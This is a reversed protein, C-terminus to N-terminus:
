LSVENMMQYAEQETPYFGLARMISPIESITVKEGVKRIDQTDIGQNRLQAYCFLNELQYMFTGNKGGEIQEYFPLMDNGGLREQIELAILSVSWVMLSAFAGGVSFLYEGDSSVVLDKVGEPHSVMCFSRHHNGTIPLFSIAIKSDVLCAIFPTRKNGVTKNSSVIFKEVPSGFTPGLLTKRCMKTTTNILKFKYQNNCTLILNESSLEPYSAMYMPLANHEVLNRSKVGLGAKSSDFEYEVLYRDHAISFFRYSQVKHKYKFMINRIEKNHAKYRGIFQFSKNENIWVSERQIFYMTVANTSDATALFQMNHSFEIHTIKNTTDCLPAKYLPQLNLGHLIEIKGNAFGVAVMSGDHNFKLCSIPMKGEDFIRSAISDRTKYNIMRLLSNQGGLAILPKSPHVDISDIPCGFNDQIVEHKTGNATVYVIKAMSTGFVFNPTFFANKSLISDLELTEEPTEVNFDVNYDFSITTISGLKVDQIWNVLKLSEDYFKIQGAVDGTVIYKNITKLVTIPKLQMRVLKEMRHYPKISEFNLPRYKEWLIFKGMQTASLAMTKNKMFVSATIDGVQKEVDIQGFTPSFSAIQLDNWYFFIVAKNSNSVVKNNDEPSFTLYKQYGLKPDIKIEFMPTKSPDVWNWISLQQIPDANLVALFNGTSSVAVAAVGHTKFYSISRVPSTIAKEKSVKWINVRSNVGKDAIILFSKDYSSTLCSITNSHGQLLVQENDKVDFVVGCHCCAYLISLGAGTCLNVVPLYKQQGLCQELRLPNKHSVKTELVNEKFLASLPPISCNMEFDPDIIDQENFSDPSDPLQPMDLFSMPGVVGMKEQCEQVYVDSALQDSPVLPITERIGLPLDELEVKENDVETKKELMWKATSHDLPFYNNIKDKTLFHMRESKRSIKKKPVFESEELKLIIPESSIYKSNEVISKRDRKEQEADTEADTQADTQADTEAETELDTEAYTESDSKTEVKEDDTKGDETEVLNINFRIQSKVLKERKSAASIEVIKIDNISKQIDELVDNMQREKQEKHYEKEEGKIESEEKYEESEAIKEKKEEVLKEEENEKLDLKLINANQDFELQEKNEIESKKTEDLKEGDKYAGNEDFGREDIIIEVKTEEEKDYKESKSETERVNVSLIEIEFGGLETIQEKLNAEEEEDGDEREEEEEDDDEREEEEEDEDEREEEEEDEVSIVEIKEDIVIIKEDINEIIEGGIETKSAILDNVVNENKIESAEDTIKDNQDKKDEQLNWIEIFKNSSQNQNRKKMFSNKFSKGEVIDIATVNKSSKIGEKKVSKSHRSNM